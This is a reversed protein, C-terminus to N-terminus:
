KVTLKIPKSKSKEDYSDGKYLVTLKHSGKHLGKVKIKAKGNKLKGKAVKKKGDKVILKGTPIVGGNKSQDNSVKVKLTVVAGLKASKPGKAKTVSAQKSLTISGLATPNAQTCLATAATSGDAKTAVVTFSKPMSVTYTGAAPLQFATNAGKGSFTTAPPGGSPTNWVVPAKAVTTGFSAGFDDSKASTVGLSNLATATAADVTFSSNFSLLGAPVPFGAPATPPLAIDVSVTGAFNSGFASCNYVTSKPAASASTSTVGVLGATAVAVATGGLAVRKAISHLNM